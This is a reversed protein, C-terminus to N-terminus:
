NRLSEAADLFRRATDSWSEAVSRAVTEWDCWDLNQPANRWLSVSDEHDPVGDILNAARSLVQAASENSADTSLADFLQTTVRGYVLSLLVMSEWQEGDAFLERNSDALNTDGDATALLKSMRVTRDSRLSERLSSSAGGDQGSLEDGKFKADFKASLNAIVLLSAVILGIGLLILLVLWIGYAIGFRSELAGAWTEGQRVFIFIILGIISAGIAGAFTCGSSEEPTAAPTQIASDDAVVAGPHRPQWANCLDSRDVHRDQRVCFQEGGLCITFDKCNWCCPESARGDAQFVIEKEDAM